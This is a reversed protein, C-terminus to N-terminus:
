NPLVKVPPLDQEIPGGTRANVVLSARFRATTNAELQQDILNQWYIKRLTRDYATFNTSAM